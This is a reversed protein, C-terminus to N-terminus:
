NKRSFIDLLSIFINYIQKYLTITASIYDKEVENIINSITYLIMGSAFVIILGSIILHLISINLFINVFISTLIIIGGAFLFANLFQFKKKTLMAYCSLILFLLSSLTLSFFIIEEGGSTHLLKNIVPGTCYGLIGTFLFVMVLRYTNNKVVDIAILLIFSMIFPIITNKSPYIFYLFSTLSGFLITSSLLMFTKQIVKNIEIQTRSKFQIEHKFNNTM